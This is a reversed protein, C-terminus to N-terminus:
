ADRNVTVVKLFLPKTCVDLITNVLGIM